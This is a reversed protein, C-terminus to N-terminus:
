AEAFEYSVAITLIQKQLALPLRDTAASLDFSFRDGHPISALRDLPALQNFTGDTPLARLIRFIEKHLPKLISQTWLDVMAFVRVKGAAERKTSLRGLFVPLDADHYTKVERYCSSVFEEIKKWKESPFDLIARIITVQKKLLSALSPATVSGLELLSSYVAPNKFLSYCDLIANRMSVKGNPGAKTIDLLRPEWYPDGNKPPVNFTIRSGQLVKRVARSLEPVPLSQSVGNFPASITELKIKPEAEMVRFVSILTM